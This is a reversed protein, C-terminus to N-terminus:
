PHCAYQNLFLAVDDPTKVRNELIAAALPAAVQSQFPKRYTLGQNVGALKILFPVRHDTKGDFSASKRYWHDSTLLITTQNWLGAQEISRRLQTVTQDVLQLSGAYGAIPSNALSYDHKYLNYFHPSHPVPLHLFILGAHLQAMSQCAHRLMSFYTQRHHQTARSQGFPSLQVTEVLSRAQNLLIQPFNTGLSTYQTSMPWCQCSTLKHAFIRCYPLYWGLVITQLGREHALTFIDRQASWPLPAAHGPLWLLAEAPGRPTAHIVPLGTLLAPVSVLTRDSPPYANVAYFSEARLRDLERLRVGPPPQEFTLRQDWEDFLVWLLRTALRSPTKLAPAPQAVPYPHSHHAMWAAQLLVAPVLPSLALLTASLIQLLRRRLLTVAGFLVLLGACGLLLQRAAMGLVPTRLYRFAPEWHDSIVNRLANLAVGLPAILAWRAYPAIASSRNRTAWLVALRFVAALAVTNLAAAAYHVPAPPTKMLFVDNPTYTLLESWVRLYCLTALTLCQLNTKWDRM